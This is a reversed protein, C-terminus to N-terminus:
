TRSAGYGSFELGYEKMKRLITPQSVGLARAVSRSSKHAKLAQLIAKKEVKAVIDKLSGEEAAERSQEVSDTGYLAAHVDHYSIGEKSGIVVLKEVTNELDRVNGPWNHSQLLNGAQVDLYKAKSYRANFKQLFLMTLPIIDERRARLPPVEIKVVNLRYYLDERFEGRRILDELPKNTAALIRVDLQISNEGGLRSICREQLARLLKSQMSLSLDGIEDFLISGSDAQELFGRKRTQRAGTFAGKEYGFLESEFLSEPIAACNVKIFPKERRQSRNHIENCVVEKGTGTEGTILVTIDSDAIQGILYDTKKMALSEFVAKLPIDKYRLVALHQELETIKSKLAIINTLDRTITCIYRSGEFEFPIAIPLVIKDSNGLKNLCCMTHNRELALKSIAVWTGLNMSELDVQALDQLLKFPSVNLYGFGYNETRYTGVTWFDDVHLGILKDLPVGLIEEAKDNADLIIGDAGVIYIADNIESFLKFIDIHKKIHEPDTPM